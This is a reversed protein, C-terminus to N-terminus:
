KGGSKLIVRIAEILAEKQEVLLANEMCVRKYEKEYDMSINENNKNEM